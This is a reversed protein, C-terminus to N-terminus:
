RFADPRRDARRTDARTQLIELRKKGGLSPRAGGLAERSEHDRGATTRRSRAKRGPLLLRRNKPPEPVRRAEPDATLFFIRLRDDPAYVKELV